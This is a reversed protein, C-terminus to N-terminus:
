TRLIGVGAEVRRPAEQMNEAVAANRNSKMKNFHIATSGAILVARKAKELVSGELCQTQSVGGSKKCLSTYQPM